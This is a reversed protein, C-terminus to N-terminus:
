AALELAARRLEAAIHPRVLDNLIRGKPKLLVISGPADLFRLDHADGDIFTASHSGLILRGEGLLRDRVDEPVVVAVSQGARLYAVARPVDEPGGVSYTLHYRPDRGLSRQEVPIKTYDMFQIDTPMVILREWVIDSTGNLRVVPKLGEQAAIARLKKIDACVLSLFETPADLWMRTRRQKAALQRPLGSLGAGALCMERCAPTSHPCVTKGGASTHPSLYLIATLYGAAEGKTTKKNVMTLLRLASRHKFGASTDLKRGM